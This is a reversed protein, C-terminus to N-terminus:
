KGTYEKKQDTDEFLPTYGPHAPSTSQPGSAPNGSRRGWTDQLAWDLQNTRNRLADYVSVPSPPQYTTRGTNMTGENSQGPQGSRPGRVPM